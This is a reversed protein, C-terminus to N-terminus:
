KKYQALQTSTTDNIIKWHETLTVYVFHKKKKKSHPPAPKCSGCIIIFISSQPKDEILRLLVTYSVMHCLFLRGAFWWRFDDRVAGWTVCKRVVLWSYHGINRHSINVLERPLQYAYWTWYPVNKKENTPANNEYTWHLAPVPVYTPSTEYRGVLLWSHVASETAM